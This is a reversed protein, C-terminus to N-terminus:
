FYVCANRFDSIVKEIWNSIEAVDDIREIVLNKHTRGLELGKRALAPILLRHYIHGLRRTLIGIRDSITENKVPKVVFPIFMAAIATSAPTPSLWTGHFAEIASGKISKDVWNNGSAVQGLIYYTGPSFDARPHWAIVDIEEDKPSKSVGPLPTAVAKGDGFCHYIMTLKKLFGSHDPRPFGFSYSHGVVLGAAAWTACAQFLDRVRHDIVYFSPEDFVVKNNIHSIFLCFIYIKSGDNLRDGLFVLEQDSESFDFPYCEGLQEIRDRIEQYVGELFDQADISAGEFDADESNKRKDWARTLEHFSAAYYESSLTYLEFWDCIEQSGCDLPLMSLPTEIM